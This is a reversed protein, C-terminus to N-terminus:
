DNLAWLISKEIYENWFAWDHNGPSEIYTHYVSESSLFDHYSHNEQLLFDETGCAMFIRPIECNHKKM